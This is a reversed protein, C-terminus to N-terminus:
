EDAEEDQWRVTLTGQVEAAEKPKGWRYHWLLSDIAPALKGKLARERIRQQYAPDDLISACFQKV